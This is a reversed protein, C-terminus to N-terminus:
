SNGQYWRNFADRRPCTQVGHGEEFCLSCRTRRAQSSPRPDPNSSVSTVRVAPPVGRNVAYNPPFSDRSLPFNRVDPPVYRKAAQVTADLEQVLTTLEAQTKPPVPCLRRYEPSLGSWINRLLSGVAMKPDFQRALGKMVESYRRLSEGPAQTRTVFERNLDVKYDAGIFAIKVEKHFEELTTISEANEVFWDLAQGKLAMPLTVKLDEWKATFQTTVLTVNKLFTLVPIEEPDGSFQLTKIIDSKFPIKSFTAGTAM